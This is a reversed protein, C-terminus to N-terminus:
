RLLSVLIVLVIAAVSITSLAILILRGSPTRATSVEGPRLTSSEINGPTAYTAVAPLNEVVPRLEGLTTAAFVADLYRRYDLDDIAGSEFATNVRDVLTEREAADVPREPTSVYKSSIPLNTMAGAYSRRVTPTRRQTTRGDRTGSRAPDAGRSADEVTM